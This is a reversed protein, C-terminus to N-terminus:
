DQGPQVWSLRLSRRNSVAVKEGWATERVVAISGSLLREPFVLVDVDTHELEIPLEDTSGEVIDALWQLLEPTPATVQGISASPKLVLDYLTREVASALRPDYLAMWDSISRRAHQEDRFVLFLRGAGKGSVFLRWYPAMAPSAAVVWTRESTGCREIELHGVSVPM